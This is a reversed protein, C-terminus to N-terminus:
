NIVFRSTQSKSNKLVYTGAKLSSVNIRDVSQASMLARGNLDLVVVDMKGSLHLFGGKLPNPYLILPNLIELVAESEQAVVEESQLAEETNEVEDYYHHYHERNVKFLSVTGSVENAVVILASNIPSKRKKIFFVDEPGLDKAAATNAPVSFDRNNIYQVFHPYYPNSVDYVMIGGVRELGIFAYYRGRFKAVEVAEPEPGKDDSRDKFSGNEDNTSNFDDPLEQATIQEFDDGSDFVLQGNGKRISFSRAGYTYIEEFLGDNNADGTAITTKMRGIATEAQLAAANPFAVPDLALDKVRVEESYGSYDRSDGENALVIFERGWRKYNAMADPMYMGLIPWNAIDINATENSADLGNGALSHDKFGLGILDIVQANRIDIKALANNEQLAVWAVRSNKSVSIYEPELDQAVTSNGPNSSVRISPDLTANNFATFTVQDVDSQTLDEVGDDLDIITVSGEPDITFDDNPEGENAVLVYRGNPTFVVNDPLAGATVQNIFNGDTDFFVAKGVSQKDVNEVAAVVIGDKVAVSNASKGYPSLDISSVLTINNPDSIDLIDIQKTGGNTVFLRQSSPDHAVIEAGSEDFFGTNYTSILELSISQGASSNWLFLALLCPIFFRFKTLRTTEM